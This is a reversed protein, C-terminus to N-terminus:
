TKPTAPAPPALLLEACARAIDPNSGKGGPLNAFGSKEVLSGREWTSAKSLDALKATAEGQGRFREACVPALAEM